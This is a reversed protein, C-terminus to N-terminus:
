FLNTVNHSEFGSYLAYGSTQNGLKITNKYHAKWPDKQM